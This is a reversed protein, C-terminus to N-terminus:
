KRVTLRGSITKFNTTKFVGLKVNKVTIIIEKAKVKVKITGTGPWVSWYHTAPTFIYLIVEAEGEKEPYFSQIDKIKYNKSHTPITKFGIQFSANDFNKVATEGSWTAYETSEKRVGDVIYWNEVKGSSKTNASTSNYTQTYNQSAQEEATQAQSHLVIFYLCFIIVVVNKM